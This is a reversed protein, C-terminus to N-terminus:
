KEFVIELSNRVNDLIDSHMDTFDFNHIKGDSDTFYPMQLLDATKNELEVVDEFSSLIPKTDRYKAQSQYFVKAMEFFHNILEDSPNPVKFNPVQDYNVFNGDYKRVLELTQSQYNQLFQKIKLNIETNKIPLGENGLVFYKREGSSLDEDFLFRFFSYIVDTDPTTIQQDESLFEAEGFDTNVCLEKIQNYLDTEDKKVGLCSETNIQVETLVPKGDFVTYFYLSIDSYFNAKIKYKYDVMRWLGNQDCVEKCIGRIAGTMQDLSELPKQLKVTFRTCDKFAITNTNTRQKKNAISEPTKLTHDSYVSHELQDRFQQKKPHLYHIHNVLKKTTSSITTKSSIGTKGFVEQISHSLGIINKILEFNSRHNARKFSKVESRAGNLDILEIRKQRLSNGDEPQGTAVLNGM